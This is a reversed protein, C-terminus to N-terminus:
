SRQNLARVSNAGKTVQYIRFSDLFKDLEQITFRASTTDSPTEKPAENEQFSRAHSHGERRNRCPDVPCGHRVAESTEV